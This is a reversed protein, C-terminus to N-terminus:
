PRAGANPHRRFDNEALWSQLIRQQPKTVSVNHPTGRFPEEGIAEKWNPTRTRVAATRTASEPTLKSPADLKIAPQEELLSEDVGSAADATQGTVIASAILVGAHV